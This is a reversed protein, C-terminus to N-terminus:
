IPFCIKFVVKDNQQEYFADGGMRRAVGRVWYLGLGMGSKAAAREARYYKRFVQSVDPFGEVGVQNRVLLQWQSAAHKQLCVEIPTSPPSYKAANDILNNLMLVLLQEDVRAILDQSVNVQLRDYELHSMCVEEVLAQVNVMAIEPALAGQELIDVDVGRKLVNDVNDVATQVRKLRRTIAENQDGLTMELNSVAMRITSLPTKVEHMLMGYFSSSEEHRQRTQQLEYEVQRKEIEINLSEQVKLQTHRVLILMMMFMSLMGLPVNPYLASFNDAQLKLVVPVIWWAVFVTTVVYAARLAFLFFRDPHRAVFANFLGLLNSSLIFANIIGLSKDAHGNLAMWILLPLIAPILLFYWRLWHPLEFLSFIRYFLLSGVATHVLSQLTMWQNVWNVQTPWIFKSAFGLAIFLYFLSSLNYISDFLWLSDRTAMFVMLSIVVMLIGMGAFLSSAIQVHGDLAMVDQTSVVRAYVPTTPTIVRLYVTSSENELPQFPVAHPLSKVERDAFRHQLGVQKHLWQGSGKPLYVDVHHTHAPQVLLSWAKEMSSGVTLRIWVPTSDNGRFLPGSLPKFPGDKMQDVTLMGTPDEFYARETVLDQYKASMPLSFLWGMFLFLLASVLLLPLAPPSIPRTM